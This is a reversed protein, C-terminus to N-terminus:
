ALSIELFEISGSDPLRDGYITLALESRGSGVLGAIGLIEGKKIEFSIDQFENNRCLKNVKLLVDKNPDIKSIEPFLSGVDRGTM